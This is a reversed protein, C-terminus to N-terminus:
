SRRVINVFISTQISSYSESNELFVYDSNTKVIALNDSNKDGFNDIALNETPNNINEEIDKTKKVKYM